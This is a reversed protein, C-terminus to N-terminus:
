SSERWIKAFDCIEEVLQNWSEGMLPVGNTVEPRFAEFFSLIHGKSATGVLGVVYGKPLTIHQFRRQYKIPIAKWTDALRTLPKCIIDLDGLVSGPNAIAKSNSAGSEVRRESLILRQKRFEEDTILDAMKMRILQQLEAEARKRDAARKEAITARETKWDAAFSRIHERLHSLAHRDPSM